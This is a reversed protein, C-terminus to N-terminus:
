NLIDKLVLIAANVIKVATGPKLPVRALAICSGYGGYDREAISNDTPIYGFCENANGCILINNEPFSGKIDLGLQTFVEGQTALIVANGVRLAQIQFTQVYPNPHSIKEKAIKTWEYVARYYRPNSEKINEVAKLEKDIDDNTIPLLDIVESFDICKISKPEEKMGKDLLEKFATYIAEGTKYMCERSRTDYNKRLPDIDGCYGNLFVGNLGDKQLLEVVVGPFDASIYRQSGITVPHCGHNLIFYDPKNLLEFHIVTLGADVPGDSHARNFGVPLFKIKGSSIRKVETINGVAEKAAKILLPIMFNIYESNYEGCGNLFAVSPAAHTHTAILIINSKKIGLEKQIAGKVTEVTYSDYNLLDSNIIVAKNEETELYFCNTYIDDLIDIYSRELFYGFGQLELNKIDTHPTINIRSYGLKLKILGKM